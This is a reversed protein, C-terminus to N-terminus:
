KNVDFWESCYTWPKEIGHPTIGIAVGCLRCQTADPMIEEETYDWFTGSLISNKIDGATKSEGTGESGGWIQTRYKRAGSDGHQCWLTDEWRIRMDRHYYIHSGFQPVEDKKVNETKLFVFPERYEFWSDQPSNVEYLYAAGEYAFKVVSLTVLMVLMGSIWVRVGTHRLVSKKIAPIM